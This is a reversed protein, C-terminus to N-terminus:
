SQKAGSKGRIRALLFAWRVHDLKLSLETAQLKDKAGRPSGAIEGKCGVRKLAGALQTAERQLGWRAGDQAGNGRGAEFDLTRWNSTVGAQPQPKM